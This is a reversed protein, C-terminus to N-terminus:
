AQLLFVAPREPLEFPRRRWDAITRSVILEGSATLDCAVCLRTDPACVEILSAQLIRTRYPTEIFIQTQREARAQRELDLIRRTRRARDRPLYGRFTFHQGGLGSAMLALLIASPGILPVVRFGEQHAQRVLDAGPDAVGPCGAESLLGLPRGARLPALLAPVDQVPTHEDLRTISLERLACPMGLGALVARASKPNEAVFDRLARVTDAAAVPLADQATGGIPAPIVYLAAM